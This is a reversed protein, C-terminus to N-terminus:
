ESRNKKELIKNEKIIAQKELHYKYYGNLLATLLPTPETSLKKPNVGNEDFVYNKKDAWIAFNLASRFEKNFTNEAEVPPLEGRYVDELFAMVQVLLNSILPNKSSYVGVEKVAQEWYKETQKISPHFKTLFQYVISFSNKFNVGKVSKTPIKLEKAKKICCNMPDTIGYGGFYWVEDFGEILQMSLCTAKQKNYFTRYHEYVNLLVFKSDEDYCGKTSPIDIRNKQEENIEPLLLFVRKKKEEM